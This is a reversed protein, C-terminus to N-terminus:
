RYQRTMTSTCGLMRHMRYLKQPQHHHSAYYIIHAHKKNILSFFFLRNHCVCTHHLILVMMAMYNDLLRQWHTQINSLQANAVLSTSSQYHVFHFCIIMMVGNTKHISSSTHLWFLSVTCRLVMIECKFSRSSILM